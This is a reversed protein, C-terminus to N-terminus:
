IVANEITYWFLEVLLPLFNMRHMGSVFFAFGYIKYIRCLESYDVKEGFTLNKITEPQALNSDHVILQLIMDGSWCVTFIHEMLDLAVAISQCNTIQQGCIWTQCTQKQM